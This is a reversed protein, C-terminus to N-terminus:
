CRKTIRITWPFAPPEFRDYTWDPNFATIGVLDAGRELAADRVMDAWTASENQVAEPAIDSMPTDFIIQRRQLADLVDDILGQSGFWKQMEGHAITDPEQWYVPSPRRFEQEGVGNIDNGSVDPVLSMLTQDPQYDHDITPSRTKM